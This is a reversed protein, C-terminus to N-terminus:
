AITRCRRALFGTARTLDLDHVLLGASGHPQWAVITGDPDAIASTSPAGEVAVNVTAFWIQNEAARCRVAAEHFSNEPEAYRRPRWTTADPEHHHLHLVLPAGRRAAWRVTEPYRWGEHCITVGFPIGEVAFLAREDGPAYGGDESPDLQVKDQWGLLAGDSGAVLATLRPADHVFRETGVVAVLRAEGAARALAAHAEALFARDPPAAARGPWRYGPVYCEPFAVLRAGAHAAEHMAAIARAVSETPSPAPALTALALRLTTM